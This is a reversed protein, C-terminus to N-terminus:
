SHGSKKKTERQAAIHRVAERVIQEAIQAQQHWARRAGVYSIFADTEQVCDVAVRLLSRGKQGSELLATLAHLTARALQYEMQYNETNLIFMAVQSPNDFAQDTHKLKLQKSM